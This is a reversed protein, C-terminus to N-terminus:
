QVVVTGEMMPHVTCHYDYTGETNFTHEFVGNKYLRQSVLEGGSDSTVTHGASDKNTWIVKDGAHITLNQAMYEFGKIEIDYTKASTDTTTNTQQEDEPIQQTGLENGGAGNVITGIETEMRNDLSKKIFFGGVLVLLIVVFAIWVGKGM